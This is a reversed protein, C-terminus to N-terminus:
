RYFIGRSLHHPKAFGFKAVCLQINTVQSLGVVVGVLQGFHQQHSVEFQSILKGGICVIFIILFLTLSWYHPMLRWRSLPTWETRGPCLEQEGHVERAVLEGDEYRSKM